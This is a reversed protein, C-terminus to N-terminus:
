VTGAERDRLAGESNLGDLRGLREHMQAIIAQQEELMRRQEELAQRQEGLMTNLLAIGRTSDAKRSPEAVGVTPEGASLRRGPDQWGYDLLVDKM